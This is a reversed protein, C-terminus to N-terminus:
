LILFFPIKWIYIRQIFYWQFWCVSPQHLRTMITTMNKMLACMSIGVIDPINFVLSSCFFHEWHHIKGKVVIDSLVISSNPELESEESCKEILERLNMINMLALSPVPTTRALLSSTERKHFNKKCIAGPSHNHSATSTPLLYPSLQLRCWEDESHKFGM